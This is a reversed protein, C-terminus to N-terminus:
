RLLPKDVIVAGYTGNTVMIEDGAAAASVAQQIDTAATAWNAFPPVPTASGPSVCLTDASLNALALLMITATLVLFTKM